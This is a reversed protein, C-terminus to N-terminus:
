RRRAERGWAARRARTRVGRVVRGLLTPGQAPAPKSTAVGARPRPSPRWAALARALYESAGRYAEVLSAPDPEATRADGAHHDPVHLDALDGAVDYGGSRVFAEVSATRARVWALMDEPVALRDAKSTEAFVGQAIGHKIHRNYYRWPADATARNLDRIVEAEALGLSVNVPRALPPLSLDGAGLVSVFRDWLMGPDHGRPPVTVLHVRDRPLDAAWRGIMSAPDQGDWVRRPGHTDGPDQLRRLYDAYTLTSRNKVMEQWAAPIQRALDRMTIVIHVEAPELSHVARRADVQSAFALIESSIVVVDGDQWDRVQRVMQEWSGPVSRHHHRGGRVRIDRLDRAADHHAALRSPPYFVGRDALEERYTDLTHQIFTTGTKPSGIHLYVRRPGSTMPHM